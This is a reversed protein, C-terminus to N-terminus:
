LKEFVLDGRKLPNPFFSVSYQADTDDENAGSDNDTSTIVGGKEISSLFSPDDQSRIELQLRRRFFESMQVRDGRHFRIPKRSSHQMLIGRSSENIALDIPLFCDIDTMNADARFDILAQVIRHHGEHAAYHLATRHMTDKADVDASLELLTKVSSEQNAITAIHLATQLDKNFANIDAGGIIHQLSEKKQKAFIHDDAELDLARLVSEGRKFIQSKPKVEDSDCESFIENVAKRLTKLAVIRVAMSGVTKGALSGDCNGAAKVELANM